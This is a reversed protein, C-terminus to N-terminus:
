GYLVVYIGIIVYSCSYPRRGWFTVSLQEVALWNFSIRVFLLLPFVLLSLILPWVVLNYTSFIGRLTIVSNTYNLYNPCMVLIPSSECGLLAQCTLVCSFLGLPSGQCVRSPICFIKFSSSHISHIFPLLELGHSISLEMFERCRSSSSTWFLPTFFEDGIFKVIM